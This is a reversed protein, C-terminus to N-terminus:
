DAIATPRAGEDATRLLAQLDDDHGTSPSTSASTDRSQPPPQDHPFREAMMERYTTRRDSHLWGLTANAIEPIPANLIVQAIARRATAGRTHLLATLLCAVDIERSAIEHHGPASFVARIRSSNTRRRSRCHRSADSVRFHRLLADAPDEDSRMLGILLGRTGVQASAVEAARAWALADRGGRLLENWTVLGVAAM